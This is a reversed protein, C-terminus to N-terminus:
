FFKVRGHYRCRGDAAGGMAGGLGPMGADMAGYADLCCRGVCVGGM